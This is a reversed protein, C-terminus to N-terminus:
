LLGKEKFVKRLCENVLESKIGSDVSDIISLVDSDLYFGKYVKKVKKGSLLRDINDGNNGSTNKVKNKSTKKSAIDKEKEPTIKSNEQISSAVQNNAKEIEKKSIIKNINNSDNTITKKFVESVALDFVSKDSGVFNYRAEKSDWEFGLKKIKTQITRDSSGYKIALEAVKIEKNEIAKIMDKVLLNNDM